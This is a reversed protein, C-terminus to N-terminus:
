RQIHDDRQREELQGIDIMPCDDPTPIDLSERQTARRQDPESVIPSVDAM